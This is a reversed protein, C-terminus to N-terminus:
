VSITKRPSVIFTSINKNAESDWASYLAQHNWLTTIITAEILDLKGDSSLKSLTAYVTVAEAIRYDLDETVKFEFIYVKGDTGAIGIQEIRDLLFVKEVDIITKGDLVVKVALSDASLYNNGAFALCLALGIFKKM